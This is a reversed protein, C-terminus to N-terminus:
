VVNTSVICFLDLNSSARGRGLRINTAVGRFLFFFDENKKLCDELYRQFDVNQSVCFM